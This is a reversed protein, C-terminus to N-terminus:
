GVHVTVGNLSRAFQRIRTDIHDNGLRGDTRIHIVHLTQPTGEIGGGSPTTGGHLAEGIRAGIAYPTMEKLLNLVEQFVTKVKDWNRWVLYGIAALAAIGITVALLIPLVPALATWLATGMAGIPPITGAATVGMAALGTSVGGAFIIISGLTGVLLMGVGVLVGIAVGVTKIPAPLSVFVHTVLTLGRLLLNLPPLLVTGIDIALVRVNQSLKEMQAAVTQQQRAFGEATPSNADTVGKLAALTKTYDEAGTGALAMAGQGGRLAPILKLVEESHGKTAQAVDLMVGHLGKARLGAASFDRVLDIGSQRSLRELEKRAQAGPNVMHSVIGTFQTAALAASPFGHQTLAALAAGTDELSIGLNAAMGIAKGGSDVLEDLTMNGRAASLHLIDMAHGAREAPINFEKMAAALTNATKGVDSGTSLASKMAADLVKIKDAPNMESFLNSIHMWGDALQNLDAGSDTALKKVADSMQGIEANTMNTNGAVESMKKEFDAAEKTAAGFMGLLTAGVAAMGAFAATLRRSSGEAGDMGHTLDVLTHTLDLVGTRASNLGEGRLLFEIVAGIRFDAM